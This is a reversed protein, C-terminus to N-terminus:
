LEVFLGIALFIQAILDQDSIEKGAIIPQVGRKYLEKQERKSKPGVSIQVPTHNIILDTKGCYDMVGPPCTKIGMYNCLSQVRLEAQFGPSQENRPM